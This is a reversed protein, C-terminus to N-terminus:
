VEGTKEEFQFNAFVNNCPLLEHWLRIYKVDTMGALVREDIGINTSLVFHRVIWEKTESFPNEPHRALMFGIRHKLIDGRSIQFNQQFVRNVKPEAKVDHLFSSLVEDPIHIAVFHERLLSTVSEDVFRSRILFPITAASALGIGAFSLLLRRSIGSM